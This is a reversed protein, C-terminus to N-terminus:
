KWLPCCPQCVVSTLADEVAVGVALWAPWITVFLMVVGDKAPVCDKSTRPGRSCCSAANARLVNQNRLAAGPTMLGTVLPVGNTVMEVFCYTEVVGGTLVLSM